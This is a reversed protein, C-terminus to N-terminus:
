QARPVKAADLLSSCLRSLARYYPVCLTLGDGPSFWGGDPHQCRGVVDSPAHKYHPCDGRSCRNMGNCWLGVRSWDGPLKVYPPYDSM